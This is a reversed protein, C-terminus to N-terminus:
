GTIKYDVTSVDAVNASNLVFQGTGGLGAVRSAQPASLDGVTGGPTNRTLHITSTATLSVGTVTVTGAVLTAVGTQINQQALVDALNPSYTSVSAKNFGTLAPTGAM